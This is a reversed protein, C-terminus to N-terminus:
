FAVGVYTSQLSAHTEKQLEITALRHLFAQAITIDLNLLATIIATLLLTYCLAYYVDQLVLTEVHGGGM